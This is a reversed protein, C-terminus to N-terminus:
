SSVAAMHTHVRSCVRHRFAYRSQLSQASVHVTQVTLSYPVGTRTNVPLIAKQVPVFQVWPARHFRCFRTESATLQTNKANGRASHLASDRATPRRINVCKARTIQSTSDCCLLPALAESRDNLGNAPLDFACRAVCRAVYFDLRQASEENRQSSTM